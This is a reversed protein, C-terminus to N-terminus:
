QDWSTSGCVRGPTPPSWHRTSRADRRDVWQTGVSDLVIPLVEFVRLLAFAYAFADDGTQLLVQHGVVKPIFGGNDDFAHPDKYDNPSMDVVKVYRNEAHNFLYIVPVECCHAGGTFGEIMVGPHRERQFAIVCMVNIQAVHPTPRNAAADV